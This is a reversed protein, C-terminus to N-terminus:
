MIENELKRLLARPFFKAIFKQALAEWATVSSQPQSNLWEDAADRLSFPCRHLRVLERAVKGMRVITCNRIFRELHAHPDETNSGGYQYQSVLNIFSPKLEFNHVDGGQPAISGPYDYNMSPATLERLCRNAGEQASEQGMLGLAARLREGDTRADEARLRAETDMRVRAEIEEPTEAAM